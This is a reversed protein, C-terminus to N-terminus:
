DEKVANEVVKFNAKEGQVDAERIVQVDGFIEAIEELSKGKTEPYYFAFVLTCLFNTLIFLIYYKWGVAALAIPSCQTIILSISYHIVQVIANAKARLETTFVEPPVIWTMPGLLASYNASVAFICAILGRQAAENTPFGPKAPFVAALITIITYSIFLLGSSTVLIKKRGVKDVFFLSILCAVPAVSGYLGSVLLQRDQDYQLTAYIATQYYQVFSIGSLMAAAWVFSGVFLRKRFPADQPPRGVLPQASTTTARTTTTASRRRRRRTAARSSSGAPSEAIFLVSSGLIIAPIAQIAFGLRWQNANQWKGEGVGTWLAVFFGWAVMMQNVATIRGREETRAIEAGFVPAVGTITGVAFGVLLRGIILMAVHAAGAMLAGGIAGWICGFAIAKRRGFKDSTYGVCASGLWAGAQYISVIAGRMPPDPSGFYGLFSKLALSPTIIGSDSSSSVDGTLTQSQTGFGYLFGGIGLLLSTLFPKSFWGVQKM